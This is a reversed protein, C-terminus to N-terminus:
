NGGETEDDAMTAPMAHRADNLAALMGGYKSCSVYLSKILALRAQESM